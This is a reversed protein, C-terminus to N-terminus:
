QLLALSWKNSWHNLKDLDITTRPLNSIMIKTDDAFIYFYIMLTSWSFCLGLSVEMRFELFYKYSLHTTVMSLYWKGDLDLHILYEKFWRWLAGSIIGLAHLKYTM